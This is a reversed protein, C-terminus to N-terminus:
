EFIGAHNHFRIRFQIGDSRSTWAASTADSRAPRFYYSDIFPNTFIFIVKGCVLRNVANANSDAFWSRSCMSDQYQYSICGFPLSHKQRWQICHFELQCPRNCEMLAELSLNETARTAIGRPILIPKESRHSHHIYNVKTHISSWISSFRMCCLQLPAVIVIAMHITFTDIDCNLDILCLICIGNKEMRM